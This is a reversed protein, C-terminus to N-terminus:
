TMITVKQWCTKAIRLEREPEANGSENGSGEELIKIHRKIESTEVIRTSGFVVITHEIGHEKLLLETKLYDVELRVTRVEDRRLFDLDCDAQIYNSHRMIAEIRERVAPEEEEPKPHQWPMPKKHVKPVKQFTKKDASKLQMERGV